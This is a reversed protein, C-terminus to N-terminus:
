FFVSSCRGSPPECKADLVSSESAANKFTSINEFPQHVSVACFVQRKRNSRAQLVDIGFLTNACFVHVTFRGWVDNVPHYVESHPLLRINLVDPVNM